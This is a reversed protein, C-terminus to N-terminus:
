GRNNTFGYERVLSSLIREAQCAKRKRRRLSASTNCIRLYSETCYRYIIVWLCLEGTSKESDDRGSKVFNAPKPSGAQDQLHRGLGSFDQHEPTSVKTRTKTTINEVQM